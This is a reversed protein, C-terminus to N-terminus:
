SKNDLGKQLMKDLRARVGVKLGKKIAKHISDSELLDCTLLCCISFKSTHLKNHLKCFM